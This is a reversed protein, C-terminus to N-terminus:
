RLSVGSCRCISTRVMVWVYGGACDRPMSELVSCAKFSAARETSEFTWCSSQAFRSPVGHRKAWELAVGRVRSALGSLVGAVSLFLMLELVLNIRRQSDLSASTEGVPEATETASMASAFIATRQARWSTQTRTLQIDPQLGRRPRFRAPLLPKLRPRGPGPGPVDRCVPMSRRQVVASDASKELMEIELRMMRVGAASREPSRSWVKTALTERSSPVQRGRLEVIVQRM